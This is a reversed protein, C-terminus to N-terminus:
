FLKGTLTIFCSFKYSFEHYECRDSIDEVFPLFKEKTSSLLSKDLRRKSAYYKSFLDKTEQYLLEQEENLNGHVMEYLFGGKGVKKNSLEKELEAIRLRQTNSYEEKIVVPEDVNEIETIRVCFGKYKEEYFRCIDHRSKESKAAFSNMVTLNGARSLTGIEIFYFNMTEM